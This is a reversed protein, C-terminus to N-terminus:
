GEWERELEAADKDKVGKKELKRGHLVKIRIQEDHKGEDGKHGRHFRRGPQCSPRRFRIQHRERNHSGYESVRCQYNEKLKELLPQQQSLIPIM